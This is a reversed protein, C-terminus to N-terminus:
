DQKDFYVEDRIDLIKRYVFPVIYLYNLLVVAACMLVMKYSRYPINFYLQELVINYNVAPRDELNVASVGVPFMTVAVFLPDKDEESEPLAKEDNVFVTFEQLIDQISYLKIDWDSPSSSPYSVRIEFSQNQKLETLVYWNISSKSNQCYNGSILNPSSTDKLSPFIRQGPILTYSGTLEAAKEVNCLLKFKEISSISSQKEVSFIIKEINCFARSFLNIFALLCIWRRVM